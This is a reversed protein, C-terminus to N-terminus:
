EPIQTNLIEYDVSSEARAVYNTTFETDGDVSGSARITVTEDQMSEAKPEHHQNRKRWSSCVVVYVVTASLIGWSPYVIAHSILLPYPSRSEQWQIARDTLGIVNM